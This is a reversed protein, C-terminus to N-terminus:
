PPLSTNRWSAQYVLGGERLLREGKETLQWEHCLIPFGVATTSRVWRDGLCGEAKLKYLHFRASKRDIGLEEAINSVNPSRMRAISRMIEVDREQNRLARWLESISVVSM